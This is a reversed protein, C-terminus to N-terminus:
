WAPVLLRWYVVSITRRQWDNSSLRLMARRRLQPPRVLWQCPVFVKLEWCKSGGLRNEGVESLYVSECTSGTWYEDCQLKSNSVGWMSPQDGPQFIVFAGYQGLQQAHRIVVWRWKFIPRLRRFPELTLIFSWSFRSMFFFTMFGVMESGRQLKLSRTNKKVYPAGASIWRQCDSAPTAYWGNTEGAYEFSSNISFM